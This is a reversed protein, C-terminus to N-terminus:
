ASEEVLVQVEGSWDHVDAFVVKGFDRLRTVRGAITVVTGEPESRAQAITHTPADARTRISGRSSSGTWRRWLVRM